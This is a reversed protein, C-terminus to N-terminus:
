LVSNREICSMDIDVFTICHVLLNSSQAASYFYYEKMKVSIVIDRM